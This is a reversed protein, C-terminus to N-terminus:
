LPMLRLGSEQETAGCVGVDAGTEGDLTGDSGVTGVTRGLGEAGVIERDGGAARESAGRRKGQPCSSRVGLARKQLTQPM